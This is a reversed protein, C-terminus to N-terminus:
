YLIPKTHLGAAGAGAEAQGTAVGIPDNVLEFNSNFGGPPDNVM